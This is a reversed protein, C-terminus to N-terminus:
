EILSAAYSVFEQGEPTPIVGRNSRSFLQVGLEEELTRVAVSIGTQSLFLKQAAKNLSGCKAIEVVYLLQQFTM